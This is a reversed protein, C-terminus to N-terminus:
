EEEQDDEHEQEKDSPANAAKDFAAIAEDTIKTFSVEVYHLKPLDRLAMLGEDTISTGALDIRELAHFDKLMALTSDDFKRGRLTIMRLNARCKLDQLFDGHCQDSIVFIVQLSELNSLAAALGADSVKPCEVYIASLKPCNQLELLGADTIAKSELGCRELEGDACATRLGVDDFKDDRGEIGFVVAFQNFPGLYRNLTVFPETWGEDQVHFDVKAGMSSLDFVKQAPIRLVFIMAAALAIGAAVKPLWWWLRYQIPHAQRWRKAAREKRLLAVKM